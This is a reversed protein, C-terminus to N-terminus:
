LAALSNKARQKMEENNALAELTSRPTKWPFDIMERTISTVLSHPANPNKLIVRRVAFDNETKVSIKLWYKNLAEPKINPNAAAAKKVDEDPDELLLKELVEPSTTSLTALMLRDAKPIDFLRTLETM